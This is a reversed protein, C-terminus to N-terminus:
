KSRPVISRAVDPRDTTLFDVGLTVFKRIERPENVTWVGVRLGHERFAAFLEDDLWQRSVGVHTVGLASIESAIADPRVAGSATAGRVADMYATGILACTPLGPALEHITALTPFDFSIVMARDLMAHRRLTEIVAEEIGSYRSGDARRKIEVQVRARGTILELGEDLTPIVQPGYATGFFRSAADHARLEALTFDEVAGSAGTTRVLTPDHIVILHGDRSLHVDLEVADPAFELGKEFAALTNEPALLAGGRHAVIAVTPVDSSTQTSMCSGTTLLSVLVAAIAVTRVKLFRLQTSSM